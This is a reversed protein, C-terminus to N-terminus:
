KTHVLTIIAIVATVIAIVMTVSPFGIGYDSKDETKKAHYAWYCLILGFIICAGCDVPKPNARISEASIVDLGILLAIVFLCIGTLSALIISGRKPPGEAM